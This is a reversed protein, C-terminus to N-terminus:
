LKEHFEAKDVLNNLNKINSQVLFSIPEFETRKIYDNDMVDDKFNDYEM